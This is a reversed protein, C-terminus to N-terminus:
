MLCCIEFLYKKLIRIRLWSVNDLTEFSKDGNDCDVCKNGVTMLLSTLTMQGYSLRVYGLLDM